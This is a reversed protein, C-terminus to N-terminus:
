HVLICQVSLDHYGLFVGQCELDDEPFNKSEKLALGFIFLYLLQEALFFM